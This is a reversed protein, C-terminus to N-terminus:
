WVKWTCSPFIQAIVKYAMKGGGRGEWKVRHLLAGGDLIHKLHMKHDCVNVSKTLYKALQAKAAKRKFNDKFVSTLFATFEYEFYLRM